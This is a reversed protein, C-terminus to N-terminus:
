ASEAVLPRDTAALRQGHQILTSVSDPIVTNPTQEFWYTRSLAGLRERLDADEWDGNGHESVLRMTDSALRRVAPPQDDLDWTEAALWAALEAADIENDCYRAIQKRIELDLM